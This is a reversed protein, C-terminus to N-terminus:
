PGIPQLRPPGNESKKGGLGTDTTGRNKPISFIADLQDLHRNSIIQLRPSILQLRPPGNESKKGGLATDTTGKNETVSLPLPQAIPPATKPIKGFIQM